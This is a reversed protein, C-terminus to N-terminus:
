EFEYRQAAPGAITSSEQTIKYPHATFSGDQHLEFINFQNTINDSLRPLLAGCGIVPLQRKGDGVFFRVAAHVHGHLLLQVNAQLAIKFTDLANSVPSHDNEYMPILHHHMLLVVPHRAEQLKLRLGDPDVASVRKNEQYATNATVFSWGAVERLGSTHEPGYMFEDNRAFERAFENFDGFRHKAATNIDHNGPCIIYEPKCSGQFTNNFQQFFRRAAQYHYGDAKDAIDGGVAIILKEPQHDRLQRIVLSAIQEPTVAKGSAYDIATREGFHFDTIHLLLTKTASTTEM